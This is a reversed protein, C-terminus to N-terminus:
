APTLMGLFTELLEALREQQRAGTALVEDHSLPGDSLGAARNTICSLAACRLGLAAAAAVERATSMGVADAGCARLARIEAPTEYSPGTVQAYVGDALVLQHQAAAEHLLRHLHPCYPSETSAPHQWFRPVTWDLHGTLAMLRGPDLDARIGGAANTTLLIRAGLAHALHVPEVVKRWPHGEYGHLRGAFLLVPRGSWRGLLLRGHHGAVGTDTELGPVRAFPIEHLPQLRAALGGLGSGLVLATQPRLRQADESLRQFDLYAAVHMAGM